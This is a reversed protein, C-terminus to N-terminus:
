GRVGNKHCSKCSQTTSVSPHHSSPIAGKISFLPAYSDPFGSETCGQCLSDAGNGSSSVEGVCWNTGNNWLRTPCDGHAQRGKCGLNNNCLGTSALSTAWSESSRPCQSHITEGYLTTPRNSSDLSISSGALVKALTWVIWDPHPPCGPVNITSVGTASSVSKCSTPNPSAASMGGYAACTGVSIVKSAKAALTKVASLATVAAGNQTYVYCTRGSYITPIAGEVVLIFKSAVTSSLTAVATSGAGGMFTPHFVMNVSNVLLDKFDVPSSTSVRNALSVSCGACSAGKLWIIPTGTSAALAQELPSLIEALGLAAASGAVYNFFERRTVKM